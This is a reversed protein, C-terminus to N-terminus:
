PASTEHRLQRCTRGGGNCSRDGSQLGLHDTVIGSDLVAVRARAVGWGRDGNAATKDAHIQRLNWQIPSFTEGNASTVTSISIEGESRKEGPPTSAELDLAIAKAGPQRQM